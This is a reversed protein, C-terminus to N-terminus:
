LLLIVIRKGSRVQCIGQLGFSGSVTRGCCVEWGHGGRPKDFHGGRHHSLARQQQQRCSSGTGRHHPHPPAILLVSPAWQESRHRPVTRRPDWDGTHIGIDVFFCIFVTYRFWNESSHFIQDVILSIM